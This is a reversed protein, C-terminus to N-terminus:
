KKFIYYLLKFLISADSLNIMVSMFFMIEEMGGTDTSLEINSSYPLVVEVIQIHLRSPVHDMRFCKESLFHHRKIFIIVDGSSICVIVLSCM